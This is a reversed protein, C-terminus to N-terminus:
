KIYKTMGNIELILHARDRAAQPAYPINLITKAVGVWFVNEDQPVHMCHQRMFKEIKKRDFTLLVKNREKVYNDIEKVKADRKM